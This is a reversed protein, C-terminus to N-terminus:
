NHSNLIQSANTRWENILSRLPDAFETKSVYRYSTPRWGFITHEQRDCSVGDQEVTKNLKIPIAEARNRNIPSKNLLTSKTSFSINSILQQNDGIHENMNPNQKNNKFKAPHFFQNRYDVFSDKILDDITEIQHVMNNDKTSGSSAKEKLSTDIGNLKLQSLQSNLDNLFFNVIQLDKKLFQSNEDNKMKQYIISDYKTLDFFILCKEVMLQCNQCLNGISNIDPLPILYPKGKTRIGETVILLHSMYPFIISDIQNTEICIKDRNLCGFLLNFIIEFIKVSKACDNTSQIRNIIYFLNHLLHSVVQFNQSFLDDTNIVIFYNTHNKVEIPSHVLSIGCFRLLVRVMKNNALDSSISHINQFDRTKLKTEINSFLNIFELLFSPISHFSIDEFNSLSSEDILHSSYLEKIQVDTLNVNFFMQHFIIIIMSLISLQHNPINSFKNLNDFKKNYLFLENFRIDYSLSACQLEFLNNGLNGECIIEDIIRLHEQYFQLNKGNTIASFFNIKSDRRGNFQYIPVYTKTSSYYLNDHITIQESLYSTQKYFKIMVEDVENIIEKMNLQTSSQTSHFLYQKGSFYIINQVGCLKFTTIWKRISNEFEYEIRQQTISSSNFETSLESIFNTSIISKVDFCLFEVHEMNIWSVDKPTVVDFNKLKENKKINKLLRDKMSLSCILNGDDSFVTYLHIIRFQQLSFQLNQKTFLDGDIIFYDGIISHIKFIYHQAYQFITPVRFVSPCGIVCIRNVLDTGKLKLLKKLSRTEDIWKEDNKLERVKTQDNQNGPQKKTKYERNIDFYNILDISHFIRHIGTRIKFLFLLPLNNFVLNNDNIITMNHQHGIKLLNFLNNTNTLTKHDFILRMIQDILSILILEQKEDSILKIESMFEEYSQHFKRIRMSETSVYTDDDDTSTTTTNNESSLFLSSATEISLSSGSLRRSTQWNDLWNMVYEYNKGYKTKQTKINEQRILRNEDLQLNLRVNFPNIKETENIIKNLRISLFLNYSWLLHLFHTTIDFMTQHIFVENKLMYCHTVIQYQFLQSHFLIFNFDKAEKRRHSHQRTTGSVDSRHTDCLTTLFSSDIFNHQDIACVVNFYKEIPLLGFLYEELKLERNTWNMLNFIFRNIETADCEAIRLSMVINHIISLTLSLESYSYNFQKWEHFHRHLEKSMNFLYHFLYFIYSCTELFDIFIDLENKFKEEEKVLLSSFYKFLLLITGFVKRIDFHNNLFQNISKISQKNTFFRILERAPSQLRILLIKLLHSHFEQFYEYYKIKLKEQFYIRHNLNFKVCFYKKKNLLLDEIDYELYDELVKIWKGCQSYHNSGILIQILEIYSYFLQSQIVVSDKENRNFIKITECSIVNRKYLSIDETLLEIIKMRNEMMVLKYRNIKLNSFRKRLEVFMIRDNTKNYFTKMLEDVQNSMKDFQILNLLNLQIKMTMLLILIKELYYQETLEEQRSHLLEIHRKLEKKCIMYDKKSIYNEYKSFKLSFSEDLFIEDTDEEIIGNVILVSRVKKMESEKLFHMQLEYIFRILSKPRNMIMLLERLNNLFHKLDIISINSSYLEWKTLLQDVNDNCNIKLSESSRINSTSFDISNSDVQKIEENKMWLNDMFCEESKNSIIEELNDSNYSQILKKEKLQFLDITFEISINLWNECMSLFEKQEEFSKNDESIMSIDRWENLCYDICVNNLKLQNNINLQYRAHKISLNYIFKVYKLLIFKLKKEYIIQFIEIFFDCITLTKEVEMFDMHHHYIINTLHIVLLKINFDNSKLLKKEILDLLILAAMERRDSVNYHCCLLIKTEINIEDLKELEDLRKGLEPSGLFKRNMDIQCCLKRLELDVNRENLMESCKEYLESANEFCKRRVCHDALRWIDQLERNEEDEIVEDLVLNDTSRDNDHPKLLIEAFRKM